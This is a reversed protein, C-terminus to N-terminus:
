KLSALLSMEKAHLEQLERLSKSMSPRAFKERYFATEAAERWKAAETASGDIVRQPITNASLVITHQLQKIEAVLAQKLDNREKRTMKEM